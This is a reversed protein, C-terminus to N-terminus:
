IFRNIVIDTIVSLLKWQLMLDYKLLSSDKVPQIFTINVWTCYAKIFRLYDHQKILTVKTCSSTQYFQIHWLCCIEQQTM